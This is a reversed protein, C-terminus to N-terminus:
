LINPRRSKVLGIFMFQFVLLFALILWFTTETIPLGSFSSLVILFTVGLSPIIVAFMLYMLTLPNLQSGYKRIMIKQEASINEIISEIVSGIDSGAKIGNSLQWLSRRYYQSPIKLASNDLAVETSEGVNIRKVIDRFESSVLGYNGLAVSNLANFIPVGSKIQVYLHKLAHLLNKEMEKIKKSVIVKPYNKIYVFSSLSFIISFPISFSFAKLLTGSPLSILFFILFTSLFVFLSSFIGISFYETSNLDIEAQKLDINTSPFIKSLFEAIGYFIRSVVKARNVPLPCFPIHMM